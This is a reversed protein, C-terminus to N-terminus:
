GYLVMFCEYVFIDMSQVNISCIQQTMKFFTDLKNIFSSLTSTYYNMPLNLLSIGHICLLQDMIIHNHNYDLKKPIDVSIKIKLIHSIIKILKKEPFQGIVM